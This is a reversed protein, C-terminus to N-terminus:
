IVVSIKKKKRFERGSKEVLHIVHTQRVFLCLGYNYYTYRLSWVTCYGQHGLPPVCTWGWHARVMNSLSFFFFFGCGDAISTFLKIFVACVCEWVCVCMTRFICFMTYWHLCKCDDNEANEKFVTVWGLYTICCIAHSVCYVNMKLVDICRRCTQLPLCQQM